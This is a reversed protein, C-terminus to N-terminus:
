LFVYDISATKTGKEIKNMYSRSINLKEAFGMQTMGKAERIAKIRKGAEIPNFYM